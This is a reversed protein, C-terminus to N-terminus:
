VSQTDDGFKRAGGVGGGVRATTVVARRGGALLWRGVRDNRQGDPHHDTLFWKLYGPLGDPANQAPTVPQRATTVLQRYRDFDELCHVIGTNRVVRCVAGDRDPKTNVTGPLRFVRALEAVSTDGKITVAIGRLTHKIASFTDRSILTPAIRWLAHLGGGSFIVITPPIPLGDFMAQISGLTPYVGAKLDVEAWLVSCWLADRETARRGPPPPQRKTTLGYYVGYGRANFTTVREWDIRDRGIKYGESFVPPDSDRTPDIYTLELYGGLGAFLLNLFSRSENM